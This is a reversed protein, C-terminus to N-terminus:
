RGELRLVRWRGRQHVLVVRGPVGDAVAHVIARRGALTVGTIRFVVVHWGMLGARLGAVCLDRRPSTVLLDCTHGYRRENVSRFLESAVSRAEGALAPRPLAASVTDGRGFSIALGLATVVPLLRASMRSPSDATDPPQRGRRRRGRALQASTPSRARALVDRRTRGRRPGPTRAAIVRPDGARALAVISPCRLGGTEARLQTGLLSCAREYRGDRISSFFRGVLACASARSADIRCTAVGAIRENLGAASSSGHMALAAIAVALAATTRDIRTM